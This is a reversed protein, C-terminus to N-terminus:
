GEDLREKLNSYISGEYLQKRSSTEHDLILVTLHLPKEDDMAGRIRTFLGVMGGFLCKTNKEPKTGM